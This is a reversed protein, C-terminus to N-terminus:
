SLYYRVDIVILIAALILPAARKQLKEKKHTVCARKGGQMIKRYEFQSLAVTRPHRCESKILFIYRVVLTDFSVFGFHYRATICVCKCSALPLRARARATPDKAKIGGRM